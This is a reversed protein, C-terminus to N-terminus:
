GTRALHVGALVMVRLATHNHNVSPQVPRPRDIARGSRGHTRLRSTMASGESNPAPRRTHTSTCSNSSFSSGTVAVTYTTTSSSYGVVVSRRQRKACSLCVETTTGPHSRLVRAPYSGRGSLTWFVRGQLPVTVGFPSAPRRNVLILDGAPRREGANQGELARRARVIDHRNKVVVNKM